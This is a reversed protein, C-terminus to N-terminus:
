KRNEPNNFANMTGSDQKMGASKTMMNTASSTAISKGLAWKTPDTIVNLIKSRDAVPIYELLNAASAPTKMAETLVKITKPGVSNELANLAMDSKSSVARLWALPKSSLSMNQSFLEKLAAEGQPVELKVKADRIVNSAVDQMTRMTDDAVNKAIDYKGAGLFKEVTKPSEGQVLKVFSDPNTKYLELARGSLKQENIQNFGNAYAKMYNNTWGVGGASEIANDIVPKISTLIKASQKAKASADLGLGLNEIASNVSNQRISYLAAPDIVGNKTAKTIDDSVKNLVSALQTGAFQPDDGIKKIGALIPDSSLPKISSVDAINKFIKERIPTMEAALKDTAVKTSAYSEASTTGGAKTALANVNAADQAAVRRATNAVGEVNNTLMRNSLAQFTPETHGAAAVAQGPTISSSASKLSTVVKDLSPGVAERAIQAAKSMPIDFMNAISKIGKMAPVIAKGAAGGVAGIALDKGINMAQESMSESHKGGFMRDGIDMLKQAAAYGVSEGAVGGVGTGVVPVVSGLAGGLLGGGVSGAISLAPDVYDRISNWTSEPAVKEVLAPKRQVPQVTPAIPVPQQITQAVPAQQVTAQQELPVQEIAPSNGASVKQIEHALITANDVDGASHAAMFATNLDDLYAM